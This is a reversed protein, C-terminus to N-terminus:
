AMRRAASCCRTGYVVVREAADAAQSAIMASFLRAPSTRERWSHCTRARSIDGSHVPQGRPVGPERRPYARPDLALHPLGLGEGAVAGVADATGRGDHKGGRSLIDAGGHPRRVLRANGPEGDAQAGVDEKGILPEVRQDDPQALSEVPQIPGVLAPDDAGSQGGRQGRSTRGRRPVGAEVDEDADGARHATPHVHIGAAM